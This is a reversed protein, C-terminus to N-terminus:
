YLGFEQRLLHRLHAPIDIEGPHLADYVQLGEWTAIFLAARTEPLLGDAELVGNARQQRITRGIIAVLTRHRQQLFSRAPHGETGAEALLTSLLQVLGPASQNREATRVIGESLEEATLDAALHPTGHQADYWEIVALLLGTKTGFHHLLTSHDVGTERAIGRLSAGYFGKRAFADAASAVTAQKTARGTAYGDNRRASDRQKTM